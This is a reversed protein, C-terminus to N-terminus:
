KQMEFLSTIRMRLSLDTFAQPLTPVPASHLPTSSPFSVDTISEVIFIFQFFLSFSNFAYFLFKLFSNNTCIQFQFCSALEPSFIEWTTLWYNELKLKSFNFHQNLVFIGWSWGSVAPRYYDANKVFSESLESTYHM